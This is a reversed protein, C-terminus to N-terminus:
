KRGFPILKQLVRGYLLKRVLSLGVDLAINTPSVSDKILAVNQKMKEKDIEAQLKHIEIERDIESFSTYYKTDTM